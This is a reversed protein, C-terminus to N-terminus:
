AGETRTIRSFAGTGFKCEFLKILDTRTQLVDGVPTIQHVAESSLVSGKEVFGWTKALSGAYDSWKSPLYPNVTHHSSTIADTVILYDFFQTIGLFDLYPLSEHFLVGELLKKGGVGDVARKVLNQSNGRNNGLENAELPPHNTFVHLQIRQRIAKPLSDLAKALEGIGRNAYFEGFYALNLKKADVSISPTSIEYYTRPLTPHRSVKARKKISDVLEENNVQELMIKMQNKNTFIIEDAHVYALYEAFSFVTLATPPLGLEKELHQLFTHSFEDDKVASGRPNGEVDLSLPDSFEVRWFVEPHQTKYKYGAYISPAWMARTYLVSYADDGSNIKQQLLRDAIKNASYAFSVFPDWSNWAPRAQLYHRENIYPAAIREVSQDTRKERYFSCALVDTTFGFERLRKSAVVAGTDQYPSFNYLFALQTSNGNILRWPFSGNSSAQFGDILNSKYDQAEILSSTLEKFFEEYAEHHYKTLSNFKLGLQRGLKTIHQAKTISSSAHAKSISNRAIM